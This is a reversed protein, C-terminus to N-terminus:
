PMAFRALGISASGTLGLGIYHEADAGIVSVHSCMPIERSLGSAGDLVMLHYSPYDDGYSTQAVVDGTTALVPNVFGRPNFRREWVLEANADFRQVATNDPGSQTYGAVIFSGDSLVIQPTAVIATDAVIDGSATAFRLRHPGPPDLLGTDAFALVDGNDAFRAEYVSTRTTTWQWRLQGASDFYRLAGEETRTFLVVDGSPSIDVPAGFGHPYQEPLTTQWALQLEPTFVSVNTNQGIFVAVLQGAANVRLASPYGYIPASIPTLALIDGEASVHALHAGSITGSGFRVPDPDDVLVYLSGDPAVTAIADAGETSEGRWIPISWDALEECSPNPDCAAVLWSVGLWAMRM